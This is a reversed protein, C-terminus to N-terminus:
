RPKSPALLPIRRHRLLFQFSLAINLGDYHTAAYCASARGTHHEAEQQRTSSDIYNHELFM